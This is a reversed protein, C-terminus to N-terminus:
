VKVIRLIREIQLSDGSIGEGNTGLSEKLSVNKNIRNDEEKVSPAIVSCSLVIILSSLVKNMVIM